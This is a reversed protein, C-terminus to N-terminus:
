ILRSNLKILDATTFSYTNRQKTIKIFERPLDEMRIDKKARVTEKDASSSGFYLQFYFGRSAGFASKM